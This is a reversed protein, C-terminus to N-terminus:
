KQKEQGKEIKQLIEIPKEKVGFREQMKIRLMEYPKDVEMSTKPIGLARKVKPSVLILNQILGYASSSVWYVTLASPVSCAVPIMFLSVGRFINTIVKHYRTPPRTRLMSQM